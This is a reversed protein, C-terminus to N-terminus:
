TDNECRVAQIIVKNSLTLHRFSLVTETVGYYM